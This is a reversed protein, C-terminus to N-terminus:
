FDIGIQEQEVGNSDKLVDNVVSEVTIVINDSNLKAFSAM